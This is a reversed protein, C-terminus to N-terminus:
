VVYYGPFDGNLKSFLIDKKSIKNAMQITQIETSSALVAAALSDLFDDAVQFINRVCPVLLKWKAESQGDVPLNQM